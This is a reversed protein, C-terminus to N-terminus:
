VLLRNIETAPARGAIICTGGWTEATELEVHQLVRERRSAHCMVVLRKGLPVNRLAWTSPSLMLVCDYDADRDYDLLDSEVCVDWAPDIPDGSVQLVPGDGVLRLLAMTKPDCM